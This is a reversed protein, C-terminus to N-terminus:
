GAACCKRTSTIMTRFSAIRNQYSKDPFLLKELDADTTEAPLPWIINCAKARNVVDRVTKRACGCSSAIGTQSIGLNFLRLIERYKTM